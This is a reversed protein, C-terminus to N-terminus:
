VSLAKWVREALGAPHGSRGPIGAPFPAAAATRPLAWAPSQEVGCSRSLHCPLSLMTVAACLRQGAPETPSTASNSSSVSLFTSHEGAPCCGSSETGTGPGTPQDWRGSVMIVVIHGCCVQLVLWSCTPHPCLHSVPLCPSTLWPSCCLLEPVTQQGSAIRQVWFVM